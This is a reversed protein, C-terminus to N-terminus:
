SQELIEAFGGALKEGELFEVRGFRIAGGERSFPVTWLFRAVPHAAFIILAESHGPLTQVDVGDDLYRGVEARDVSAIWAESISIFAEAGLKRVVGRAVQHAKLGPRGLHGVPVILMTRERFVVLMPTHCKDRVLITRAQDVMGEAMERFQLLPIM